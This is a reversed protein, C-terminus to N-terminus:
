NPKTGRLARDAAAYAELAATDDQLQDAVPLGADAARAVRAATAARVHPIITDNRERAEDAAQTAAEQLRKAELAAGLQASREALQSNLWAIKEAQAANHAKWAYGTAVLGLMLAILALPKWHRLAFLFWM